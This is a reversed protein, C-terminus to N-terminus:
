QYLDGRLRVWDAYLAKDNGSYLFDNVWKYLDVHKENLLGNQCICLKLLPIKIDDTVIVSELYRRWQRHLKDKKYQSVKCWFSYGNPLSIFDDIFVGVAKQLTKQLSTQRFAMTKCDTAKLM